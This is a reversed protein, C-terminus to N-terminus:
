FEPEVELHILAGSSPHKFELMAAHLHLRDAKQGYLDDGVIAANLGLPHASHVRLQHTRGTIPYFRVRTRGDKREIVEYKTLAHKGYEYCVLQRPRDDLDVRLPLNIEGSDAEVIGELLAIYSKKIRRNIFQSQLVQHAKKTKAIVLLGSTSMDLRHVILPGSADPYIIRMRSYVSDDIQKGPVSLFEAPKNLVVLQDDEFVVPLTKGLAPNVLLPNDDMPMDQLMHKLIPECKGHCAPYYHLHRRVESAPSRGWWFEALAIPKLYNLFAYQLLKPAACEGAGSPPTVDERVEFIEFLSKSERRQNLFTYHEFILHQLANSKRKRSEKLTDLEQQFADLKAQAEAMRYEWHKKLDKLRLQYSISEQDLRALTRVIDEPSFGSKALTRMADREKKAQKIEQKFAEIAAQAEAQMATVQQQAALFAPDKELDEVAKNIPNIEDQGKLFFGEEDLIDFVPPVFIGTQNGDILKGSFAAIYGLQGSPEQVVLVGFMKGVGESDNDVGFNHLLDPDQLYYQQLEQAALAALPHPEYYFPFTFKEPLEIGQIASKFDIFHAPRNYPEV